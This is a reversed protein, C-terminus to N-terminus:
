DIKLGTNKLVPIRKMIKYFGLTDPNEGKLELTERFEEAEFEPNFDFTLEKHLDLVKKIDELKINFFEKRNNVKNIRQKDFYKHLENELQYAQYSFIMAHVDFKFPVSASSLEQIRQYPDLRRTVGIKYVENGFSGVNSIIYVYGAGTNEVRYDIDTKEDKLGSIENELKQLELKLAEIEDDKASILKENVKDKAINLAEIEKDLKAQKAELEKQARKNEAEEERQQRLAEKEEEKLKYYAYSADLEQFKYDLAKDDIQIQQNSIRNLKNFMTEIQKKRTPYTKFTLRTLKYDCFTNFSNYLLRILNDKSISINEGKKNKVKRLLDAEQLRINKLKEKYTESREFEFSTPALGLDQANIKQFHTELDKVEIALTDKKNTLENIEKEIEESKEMIVVKKTEEKFNNYERKNNEYLNNLDKIEEELKSKKVELDKLNKIGNKTLEKKNSISGVIYVGIIILIILTM